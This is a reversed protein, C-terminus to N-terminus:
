EGVFKRNVLVYPIVGDLVVRVNLYKVPPPTVALTPALVKVLNFEVGTNKFLLKFPVVAFAINLENATM